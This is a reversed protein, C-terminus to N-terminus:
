LRYISGASTGKSSAASPSRTPGTLCAPATGGQRGAAYALGLCPFTAPDPVEFDLQRLTSWDIAGFPTAMREPYSLAYGIPLRMDPLSLQAITAGDTTEVMSHVISQPHVVVDIQDYGAGFLLHAEIVKLGKNMLTSSDITVKPGMNWTPHALAEGVTVEALKRSLGAGSPGAQPQSSSGACRPAATKGPGAPVYASTSLM